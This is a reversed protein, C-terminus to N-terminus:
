DVTNLDTSRSVWTSQAPGRTRRQNRRVKPRPTAAATPPRPITTAPPRRRPRPARVPVGEAAAIRRVVQKAEANIAAREERPKSRFSQTVANLGSIATGIGTAIPHGSAKLLPALYDAGTQMIDAFWGGGDNEGVMVGPPLHRMVESVWQLAKPDYTPSPRALVVLDLDLSTPFREVYANWNITLTTSPSLGTYWAGSVDFESWFLQPSVRYAGVVGAVTAILNVPVTTQTIDQPSVFYYSPLTFTQGNTPINVDHLGHTQYSGYKAEWQRSGKLLLAAAPSIPPVPTFIMDAVNTTGVTGTGSLVSQLSAINISSKYANNDLPQRYVLVSGQLNLESTTNHVEVGSGFIRSAGRNYRPDLVLHQMSIGTGPAFPSGNTGSPQSHINIGVLGLGSSNSTLAALNYNYNPPAGSTQAFQLQGFGGSNTGFPDATSNYYPSNFIHCDWNGTTGAPASITLTQKVCQMVSASTTLDPWGMPDLESDHFPDVCAVISDVSTPEIGMRESLRRMIADNRGTRNM